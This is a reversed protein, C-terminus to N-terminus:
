DFFLITYSYMKQTFSLKRNKIPTKYPVCDLYKIICILHFNEIESIVMDNPINGKFRIEVKVENYLKLYYANLTYNYENSEYTFVTETGTQRIVNYTVFDEPYVIFTSLLIILFFYFKKM